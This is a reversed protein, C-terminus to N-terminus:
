PQRQDPLEINGTVQGGYTPIEVVNHRIDDVASALAEAFGEFFGM